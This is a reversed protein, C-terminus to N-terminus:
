DLHRGDLGLLSSSGGFLSEKVFLLMRLSRLDIALELRQAVRPVVQLLARECGGPSKFVLVFVQRFDQILYLLDGNLTADRSTKRIFLADALM